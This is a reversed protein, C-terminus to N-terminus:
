KFEYGEEAKKILDVIIEGHCCFGECVCGLRKGKLKSIEELLGFQQKIWEEYGDVAEEKNDAGPKWWKSGKGIYIDCFNTPGIGGDRLICITEGIYHGYEFTKHGPFDVDFPYAKIKRHSHALIHKHFAKAVHRLVFEDSGYGYKDSSECLRNIMRNLTSLSIHGERKVGWMGGMIPTSQIGTDRMAHIQKDSALWEKVAQFSKDCLRADCDRFVCVDINEDLMVDFRRFLGSYDSPGDYITVTNFLDRLISVTDKEVGYHITIHTEWGPYVSKAIKANEIAGQIYKVDDGWLSFSIVKKLPKGNELYIM